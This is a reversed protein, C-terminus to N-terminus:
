LPKSPDIRSGNLRMQKASPPISECVAELRAIDETNIQGIRVKSGPVYTASNDPKQDHRSQYNMGNLITGTVHYTTGDGNDETELFSTVHDRSGHHRTTWLTVSM